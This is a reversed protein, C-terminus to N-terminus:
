KADDLVRIGMHCSDAMKPSGHGELIYISTALDQIQLCKNTVKFKIVFNSPYILIGPGNLM